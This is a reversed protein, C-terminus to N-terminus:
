GMYLTEYVLVSAMLDFLSTGVSKFVRTSKLTSENKLLQDAYIVDSEKLLGKQVPVILDGSEKLGHLSDVYINGALRYLCDPFERMNKKYSGIGIITRERILEEKDPLVPAGSNTATIIIESNECIEQSNRATVIDLHPYTKQFREIFGKITAEDRDYIYLQKINRESCAFIAQHLGQIGLGIVGLRSADSPSLHRVAFSGVAATRMATISAADLTALPKGTASDNLIVLGQLPEIDQKRNGPTLTIVKTSFYKSAFCPMLLMTKGDYDIHNREPMYYDKNAEM